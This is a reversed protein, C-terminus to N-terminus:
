QYLHCAVFHGVSIEKINPCHNKCQEVVRGCRGAYPCGEYGQNQVGMDITLDEPEGSVEKSKGIYASTSSLLRLTYPHVMKDFLEISCIREMIRGGYMVAIEDSLYYVAELDHSILIYSLDLQRKLDGLLNLIQAQVSVDLSSLPEDLVILKPDSALARAICVRQLQGGSFQRSYKNKDEPNLGVQQLLSTIKDSIELKSLNYFNVLPEEIVQAATYRPNVASFCDQFVMQIQKSLNAKNKKGMSLRRKVPYNKFLVNGHTPPELGTILRGLTSKGCGSEGVLGLCKGNEIKFSVGNVAMLKYAKGMTKAQYIKKVDNVELLSM